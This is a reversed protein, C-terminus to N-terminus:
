TAHLMAVVCTAIPTEDWYNSQVIGVKVEVWDGGESRM